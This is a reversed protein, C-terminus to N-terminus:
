RCEMGCKGCILKKGYFPPYPNLLVTKDIEERIMRRDNNGCHPCVWRKGADVISLMADPDEVFNTPDAELPLPLMAAPELAKLGTSAHTPVLTPSLPAIPQLEVFFQM